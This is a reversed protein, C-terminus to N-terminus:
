SLGARKLVSHLTLPISHCAQLLKTLLTNSCPPSQGQSVSVAEWEAVPVLPGDLATQDPVIVVMKWGALAPHSSLISLKKPPLAELEFNVGSEDVECAFTLGKSKGSAPAAPSLFSAPGFVSQYLRNFVLQQRLFAVVSSINVLSRIPIQSILMGRARMGATSQGYQVLSYAHNQNGVNITRAIGDAQLQVASSTDSSTSSTPPTSHTSSSSSVRASLTCHTGDPNCTSLLRHFSAGHQLVLDDRSPDTVSSAEGDTHVCQRAMQAVFESSMPVPPQLELLYRFTPTARGSSGSTFFETAGLYTLRYQAPMSQVLQPLPPMFYILSPGEVLRLMNLEPSTATISQFYQEM